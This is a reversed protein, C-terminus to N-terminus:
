GNGNKERFAVALEFNRMEGPNISGSVVLFYLIRGHLTYLIYAPYRM